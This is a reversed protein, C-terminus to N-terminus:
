FSFKLFTGSEIICNLNNNLYSAYTTITSVSDGSTSGGSIKLKIGYAGAVMYSFNWIIINQGSVSAKILNTYESSSGAWATVDVSSFQGNIGSVKPNTFKSDVTIVFAGGGPIDKTTTFTITYEHPDINNNGLASPQM